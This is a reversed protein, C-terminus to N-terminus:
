YFDMFQQNIFSKVKRKDHQILKIIKKISIAPLVLCLSNFYQHTIQLHEGCKILFQVFLDSLKQGEVIEPLTM